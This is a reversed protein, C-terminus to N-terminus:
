YGLRSRVRGLVEDAVAGAKQAGVRL